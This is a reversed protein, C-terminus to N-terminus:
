VHTSLCFSFKTRVYQLLGKTRLYRVKVWSFIISRPFREDAWKLLEASEDMYSDNCDSAVNVFLFPLHILPHRLSFRSTSM